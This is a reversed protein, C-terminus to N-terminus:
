RKMESMFREYESQVSSPEPPLPPPLADPPPPAHMGPQQPYYMQADGHPPQPPAPYYPPVDAPPLPMGGPQNYYGGPGPQATHPPYYGGQDLPRDPLGNNQYFGSHDGAPFHAGSPPGSPPPAYYPQDPPQGYYPQFPAPPMPNGMGMEPRPMPMGGYHQMGNGMDPGMGMMGQNQPPPPYSPHFPPGPQPPMMGVGPGQQFFGPPGANMPVPPPGFGSPAGMAGGHPPATNGLFGPPGSAPPAQGQGQGQGQPPPVVGHLQIVETPDARSKDGAVKVLLSNGDMKYGTLGKIASHSSAPSGMTVFGFGKSTGTARDMVIRSELVPGFPTFLSRLGEDNLTKSLHGVYLKCLDLEQSPLSPVSKASQGSDSRVRVNLTKGDVQKGHMADCATRATVADTFHVFGYGRSQGGRAPDTIVSAHVVTGFAQFMGCLIAETVGLPLNGVYLKCDDSHEDRRTRTLGGGQGGSPAEGMLEPPPAGGLSQLFSKYEDDLKGAAGPNLRAVDREYQEQVKAKMDSPLEYVEIQKKPCNLATHSEDGCLYCAVEDKLTGNLAALERLQLRKHENLTEDMPELLREIMKSAKDVEQQTDGTILVHLPEDEGYDTKPDRQAGEKVSGRGRIAIKTNTEKQMRKQTNGRPGIILGIFNYGPYEAQPILIKNSYKRPKYDSPAKFNPDEKMLEEIVTIRQDVLRERHRIERTNLRVGNRDYVPEPSPSREGEPPIDLENNGLKRNIEDLKDHLEQLKPDSYTPEGTLASPLYVKIGGPLTLEKPIKLSMPGALALEKGVVGNDSGTGEWRSRRKRPASEEAVSQIPLPEIAIMPAGWRYRKRPREPVEDLGEAGSSGPPAGEIKYPFVLLPPRQEAISSSFPGFPGPYSPGFTVGLEKEAKAREDFRRILELETEDPEFGELPDVKVLATQEEKVVVEPEAKIPLDQAAPEPNEAPIPESVQQGSQEPEVSEAPKENEEGNEIVATESMCQDADEPAADQQTSEDVEM